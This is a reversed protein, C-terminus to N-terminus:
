SRATVVAAAVGAGLLVAAVGLLVSGAAYGGARLLDGARVLAVAEYSFTSFTTFSGLFGIAIFQRLQASPALSQLWVMTFGLAFSGVVNVAFTGWPFADGGLARVWDTALYRCIAGLAGGVGVILPAM